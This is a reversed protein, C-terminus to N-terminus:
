RYYMYWMTVVLEGTILQSRWRYCMYWMTIMLEGTIMQSRWRYYIFVTDVEFYCVDSETSKM